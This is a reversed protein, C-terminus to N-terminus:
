HIECDASRPGAHLYSKQPRNIDYGGIARPRDGPQPAFRQQGRQRQVAALDDAGSAEHVDDPACGRRRRRGARQLVMHRVKTAKEAVLRGDPRM